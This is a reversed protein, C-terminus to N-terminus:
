RRADRHPIIIRVAHLARKREGTPSPSLARKLAPAHDLNNFLLRHM